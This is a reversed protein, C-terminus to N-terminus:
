ILFNTVFGKNNCRAWIGGFDEDDAYTDLLSDFGVVEMSITALLSACWCLVDAVKNSQGFKHKIVLTFKQM